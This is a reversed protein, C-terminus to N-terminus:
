AHEAIRHAGATCALCAALYALLAVLLAKAWVFVAMRRDLQESLAQGRPEAMMSKTLEYVQEHAECRYEKYIREVEAAYKQGVVTKAYDVQMHKSIASNVGTLFSTVCYLGAAILLKRWSPKFYRLIM